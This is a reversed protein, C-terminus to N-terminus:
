DIGPFSIFRFSIHISKKEKLGAVKFLDAFKSFHVYLNPAALLLLSVLIKVKYLPAPLELGKYFDIKLLAVVQTKNEERASTQKNSKRTLLQPCAHV